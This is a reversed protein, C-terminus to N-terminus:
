ALHVRGGLKQTALAMLPSLQGLVYSAQAAVARIIDEQTAEHIPVAAVEDDVGAAKLADTAGKKAQEANAAFWVLHPVRVPLTPTEGILAIRKELRYTMWPKM